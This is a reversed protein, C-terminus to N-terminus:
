VSVEGTFHTGTRLQSCHKNLCSKILFVSGLSNSIYQCKNMDSQM